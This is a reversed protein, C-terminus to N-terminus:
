QAKFLIELSVLLCIARGWNVEGKLHSELTKKVNLGDVVKRKDLDNINEIVLGYLDKRDRIGQNFDIYDMKYPANRWVPFNWKKTFARLKKEARKALFHINSANIPLGFKTATTPLSFLEPSLRLLIKKYIKSEYRYKRPINLIFGAWNEETFPTRYEFLDNCVVKRIYSYQRVSFNLLDDYGLRSSDLMKRKPLYDEPVFNKCDIFRHGKKNRRKFHDIAVEYEPKGESILHKGALAEGMFGSWIVTNKSFRKPIMSNYFLDFVWGKYNTKRAIDVLEATSLEVNNLDIGIHKIGCYDAVQRGIIFDYSEPVGFTFATIKKPELGASLLGSLVARSDLGGSLPIVHNYHQALEFNDFVSKWASCGVEILESETMDEYLKAKDRFSTCKNWFMNGYDNLLEPVYGFYLLPKILDENM